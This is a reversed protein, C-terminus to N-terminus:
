ILLSLFTIMATSRHSVSICICHPASSVQFLELCTM